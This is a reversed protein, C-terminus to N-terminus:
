FITLERLTTIDLKALMRLIQPIRKIKTFSIFLQFKILKYKKKGIGFIGKKISLMRM